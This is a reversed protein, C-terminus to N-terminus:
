ARAKERLVSQYVAESQEIMSEVTFRAEVRQRAHRGLRQRLTEDGLLCRLATSLAEVDNVPVLLGTEGDVVAEANGGVPSTIVPKQMAGAEILVRAFGEHTVSPLVLVDMAGLWRQIEAQYGAFVLQGEIGLNAARQALEAHRSGDGVLVFRAQPFERALSAAAQLFWDHGKERSLRAVVGVVLHGPELGIARKAAGLDPPPVFRSVDVGNYVVVAREEPVGQAIVHQRVGESVGIVRAAETYGETSYLGRVTGIMPVQLLRAATLGLRSARPDHGVILEARYQKALRAIHWGALPNRPSGLWSPVIRPLQSSQSARAAEQAVALLPANRRCVLTVEHGRAALGHCLLVTSREAGYVGGADEGHAFKAVSILQLIRVITLTLEPDTKTRLRPM